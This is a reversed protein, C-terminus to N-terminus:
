ITYNGWNINDKKDWGKKLANQIHNIMSLYFDKVEDINKFEYYIPNDTYGFKMIFPLNNGNNQVTLDHLAKYNFQNETTLWAKMGNWEFGCIIEEEVLTNYYNLILTKIEDLSPIFNFNEEQWTALPTDVEIGKSNKQMVPNFDWMIICSEDGIKVIPKFASKKNRVKRSM